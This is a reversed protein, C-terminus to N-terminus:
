LPQGNAGILVPTTCVLGFSQLDMNESLNTGRAVQGPSCAIAAFATGANGGAAPLTSIVGISLAFTGASMTINLPACDFAVQDLETGARGSFGVVVQNAACMRSFPSGRFGGRQPLTAGTATTIRYGGSNGLVLQGCITQIDNVSNQQTTDILGAYGIVVQQSPCVDTFRTTIRISGCYRAWAEITFGFAFWFGSGRV